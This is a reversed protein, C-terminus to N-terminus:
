EQPGKQNVQAQSPDSSIKEVHGEQDVMTIKENETRRELDCRLKRERM